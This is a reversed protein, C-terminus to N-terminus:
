GPRDAAAAGRALVQPVDSITKINETVDEGTVGDGRTAGRVLIGDAYELSVSLGDIKWELLYPGDAQNEAMRASFSIWSKGPSFM